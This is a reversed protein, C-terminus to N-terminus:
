ETSHVAPRIWGTVQCVLDHFRNQLRSDVSGTTWLTSPGVKPGEGTVYEGPLGPWPAAVVRLLVATPASAGTILSRLGRHFSGRRSTPITRTRALTSIPASSTERSEAVVGTSTAREAIVGPSESSDASRTVTWIRSPSCAGFYTAEGSAIGSPATAAVETAGPSSSGIDATPCGASTVRRGTTIGTSEETASDTRGPAETSSHCVESAPSSPEGAC